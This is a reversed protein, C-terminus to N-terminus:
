NNSQQEFYDEHLRDKILQRYKQLVTSLSSRWSEMTEIRDTLSAVQDEVDAIVSLAMAYDASLAAYRSAAEVIRDADVVMIHARKSLADSSSLTLRAM